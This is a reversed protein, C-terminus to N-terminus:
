EIAENRMSILKESKKFRDKESRKDLWSFSGDEQYDQLAGSTMLDMLTFQM